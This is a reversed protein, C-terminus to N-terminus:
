RRNYISMQVGNNKYECKKYFRENEASCNLICKYCKHTILCYDSLQEVIAKGLGIGRYKTHIVIDEIHGVKGFNHIIKDEILVTGTGIICNTNMDEVVFIQHQDHLKSFYSEIKVTDIMQIDVTTLQSLLDIYHDDIDRLVIPRISMSYGQLSFVPSM